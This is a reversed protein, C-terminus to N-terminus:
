LNELKSKLAHYKKLRYDFLMEIDEKTLDFLPEEKSYAYASKKLTLKDKLKTFLRIPRIKEWARDPNSQFVYARLMDNEAKLRQMETELEKAKQLKEDTM